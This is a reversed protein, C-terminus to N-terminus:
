KEKSERKEKAERMKRARKYTEIDKVDPIEHIERIFEDRNKRSFAVLTLVFAVFLTSKLTYIPSDPSGLLIVLLAFVGSVISINVRQRYSFRKRIPNYYRDSDMIRDTRLSAFLFSSSFVSAGGLISIVGKLGNSLFSPPLLWDIFLSFGISLLSLFALMKKLDHFLGDNQARKLAILYRRFHSM